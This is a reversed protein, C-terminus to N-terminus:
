HLVGWRKPVAYFIGLTPQFETILIRVRLHFFSAFIIVHVYLKFKNIDKKFLYIKSLYLLKTVNEPSMFMWYELNNFIDLNTKHVRECLHISLYIHKNVM